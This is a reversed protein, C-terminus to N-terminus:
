VFMRLYDDTPEQPPEETADSPIMAALRDLETFLEDHKLYACMDVLRERVDNIHKQQEELQHIQRLLRVELLEEPDSRWFGAVCRRWSGALIARM